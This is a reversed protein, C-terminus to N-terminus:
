VLVDFYSGSVLDAVVQVATGRTGLAVPTQYLEYTASFAPEQAYDLYDMHSVPLYGTGPVSPALNYIEMLRQPNQVPLAHRMVAAWVSFLATNVGIALAVSVVAVVSVLPRERLARWAQRFEIM